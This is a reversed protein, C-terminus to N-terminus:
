MRRSNGAAAKSTVAHAVTGARGGMVDETRPGRDEPKSSSTREDRTTIPILLVICGFLGLASLEILNKTGITRVLLARVLKNVASAVM